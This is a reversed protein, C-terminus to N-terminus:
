NRVSGSQRREVYAEYQERFMPELEDIIDAAPVGPMTHKMMVASIKDFMPKRELMPYSASLRKLAAIVSEEEPRPILEPEQIEHEPVSAVAGSRQQLFEAFALLSAQDQVSLAAYIQSLKEVDSSMQDVSM